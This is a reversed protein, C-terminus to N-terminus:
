KREEMMMEYHSLHGSREFLKRFMALYKENMERPHEVYFDDLIDHSGEDFWRAFSAAIVLEDPDEGFNEPILSNKKQGGFTVFYTEIIRRM